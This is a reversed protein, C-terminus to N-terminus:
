PTDPNARLLAVTEDNIDYSLVQGTSKRVAYWGMLNSCIEPCRRNSRLAVVFLDPDTSDAFDCFWGMNPPGSVPLNDLAAVTKKLATCAARQTHITIHDKANCVPGWVTAFIYISLLARRM